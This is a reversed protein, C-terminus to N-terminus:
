IYLLNQEPGDDDDDDDSYSKTYNYHISLHMWSALWVLSNSESDTSNFQTTKDIEM